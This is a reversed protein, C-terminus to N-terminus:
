VGGKERDAKGQGGSAEKDPQRYADEVSKPLDEANLDHKLDLDGKLDKIGDMEENIQSKVGEVANKLESLGRGLSRAIEPLRKPGFAILAVVFIVVLEAFGIDFM